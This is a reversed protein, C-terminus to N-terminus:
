VGMLQDYRDSVAGMPVLHEMGHNGAQAAWLLMAMADAYRSTAQRKAEQWRALRGRMSWGDECPGCINDYDTWRSTGHECSRAALGAAHDEECMDAYAQYDATLQRYIALALRAVQKPMTTTM